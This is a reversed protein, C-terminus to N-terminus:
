TNWETSRAFSKAATRCRKTNACRPVMQAFSLGRVFGVGLAAMLNEANHSGRLQVEAMALVREGRFFNGRVCRSIREPCM